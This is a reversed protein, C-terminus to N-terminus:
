YNYKPFTTQLIETIRKGYNRNTGEIRSRGKEVLTKRLVDDSWIRSIASAIDKSSSPDILIGADGVQEAYGAVNSCIVPCGMTFAEIIPINSPGIYTPMVLAIAMSYIPAIDEDPIYGLYKVQENMGHKEIKNMVKEFSDAESGVLILPPQIGYDDRLLILADLLGIHNKPGHINAAYFM